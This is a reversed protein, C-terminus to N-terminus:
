LRRDSRASRYKRRAELELSRERLRPVSFM